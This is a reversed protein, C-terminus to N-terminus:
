RTDAAQADLKDMSAMLHQLTSSLERCTNQLVTTSQTPLAVHRPTEQTRAWRLATDIDDRALVRVMDHVLAVLDQRTRQPLALGAPCQSRAEGRSASLQDYLDPLRTAVAAFHDILAEVKSVQMDIKGGDLMGELGGSVKLNAMGGRLELVRMQLKHTEHLATADDAIQNFHEALGDGSLFSPVPPAADLLSELDM